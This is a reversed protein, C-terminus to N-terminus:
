PIVKQVINKARRTMQFDLGLSREVVWAGAFLIMVVAAAPLARRRYWAVNRILYLAPVLVVAIAVQGIALGLNFGLLSLGVNEGLVGLKSLFGAFGFGHFLGFAFVVAWVRGRFIPVLLNVAAAGVSVAIAVEVPREPLRVLGVAALSLTLSHAVTFATVITVSNWVAPAFRDVPQWRGDERRLVAPLLLAALFMVHDYGTVIHDIGLKVIAVFGRWRGSSTIEFDQRRADPTFVLSAQNENAFTGTAWNHEVLLFGRHDPAEDFLVSYDITLLEPVEDRGELNFRLLVYWGHAKLLTHGAFEITLPGHSDAITVHELLYDQIAGIQEDLTNPSIGHGTGDLDLNRNLDVLAIEFRGTVRDESIQLYLYSQDLKHARVEASVGLISLM